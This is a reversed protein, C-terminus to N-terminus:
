EARFAGFTPFEWAPLLTDCPEAMFIDSRVGMQALNLAKRVSDYSTDPNQIEAAAPDSGLPYIGPDDTEEAFSPSLLM